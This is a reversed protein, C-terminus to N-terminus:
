DLSIDRNALFSRFREALGDHGEVRVIYYDLARVARRQKEMDWGRAEDVMEQRTVTLINQEQLSQQVEPAFGNAVVIATADPWDTLNDLFGALEHENATTIDFDKVEVTIVLESADWGDIDGVNGRRAGGVRVKHAEVATLHGLQANFYACAVCQFAAGGPEGSAAKFEELIEVFPRTRAEAASRYAPRPIDLIEGWLRKVLAAREAGSLAFIRELEDRHQQWAQTAHPAASPYGIRRLTHRITKQVDEYYGRLGIDRGGPVQLTLTNLPRGEPKGGRTELPPFRSLADPCSDEDIRLCVEEVVAIFALMLGLHFRQGKQEVQTRHYQELEQVRKSDEPERDAISSPLGLKPLYDALGPAVESM